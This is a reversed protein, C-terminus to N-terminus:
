TRATRRYSLHHQCICYVAITRLLAILLLKCSYYLCCLLLAQILEITPHSLKDTLIAQPSTSTSNINNVLEPCDSDPQNAVPYSQV